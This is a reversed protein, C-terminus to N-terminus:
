PHILKAEVEMCSSQNFEDYSLAKEVSFSGSETRRLSILHGYSTLKTGIDHGLTRIYTGHSCTVTISLFPYEYSTLETLLDVQIPAREVEVGERALQYLRKGKIKKASYMPPIQHCQGQFESVVGQVEDLTPTYASQATIVGEIDYTDTSSGLKITAIYKKQGRMFREQQRTWNKGVLLILLGSAFPDLTGAHGVKQIGLKKRVLYVFHFSSKGTPKDFLLVGGRDSPHSSNNISTM